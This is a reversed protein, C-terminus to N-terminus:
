KSQCFYMGRAYILAETAMNSLWEEIAPASGETFDFVNTEADTEASSEVADRVYNGNTFLVLAM